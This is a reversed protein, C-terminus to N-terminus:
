QIRPPLGKLARQYALEAFPLEKRELEALSDEAEAHLRECLERGSDTDARVLEAARSAVTARAQALQEARLEEWQPLADERVQAWDDLYEKWTQWPSRSRDFDNDPPRWGSFFALMESPGVDSWRLEHARLKAIRRKRPM